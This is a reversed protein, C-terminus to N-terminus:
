RGGGGGGRGGGGGVGGGGGGGRWYAQRCKTCKHWRKTVGERSGCDCLLAKSRLRVPNLAAAIAECDGGLKWHEGLDPVDRGCFRCHIMTSIRKRTWCSDHHHCFYNAISDMDM